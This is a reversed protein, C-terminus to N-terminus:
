AAQRNVKAKSSLLKLVREVTLQTAGQQSRVLRQAREGMATAWDRSVIAKEFFRDLQSQDSIVVAANQSLLQGVVERFNETRPGFSVPVGYAAPEIMNQGGRSGMSGGVYGANALGWWAGLEGIVDVIMVPCEDSEM